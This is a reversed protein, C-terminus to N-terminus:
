DHYYDSLIGRIEVSLKRNFRCKKFTEVNLIYNRVDNNMKHMNQFIYRLDNAYGNRCISSLVFGEISKVLEIKNIIKFIDKMRSVDDKVFQLFAMPHIKVNIKSVYEVTKSFLVNDDSADSLFQVIEKDLMMFHCNEIIKIRSMVSFGSPINISKYYNYLIVNKVDDNLKDDPKEDGIKSINFIMKLNINPMVQVACNINDINDFDLSRVAEM